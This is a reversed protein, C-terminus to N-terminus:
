AEKFTAPDQKNADELARKTATVWNGRLKSLSALAGAYTVESLASIHARNCKADDCKVVAGKSGQVGCVSALHFACIYKVHEDEKEEKAETTVASPAGGPEVKVKTTASAARTVPKDPKPKKGGGGDSGQSKSKRSGGTSSSSSHTDSPPNFVLHEVRTTRWEAVATSMADPFEVADFLQNLELVMAEAGHLVREPSGPDREVLSSFRALVAQLRDLVYADPLQFVAGYGVDLTRIVKEAVKEWPAGFAFRMALVFGRLCALLANKFGPEVTSANKVKPTSELPGTYFDLLSLLYIQTSSFAFRFFRERKALDRFVQLHAVQQM